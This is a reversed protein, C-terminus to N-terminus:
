NRLHSNSMLYFKVTKVAAEALGNFHPGGPPSFHWKIKKNMLESCIKAHHADEDEIAELNEMLIKNARVFNTGNDSYINTVTGRRATFRRFAAIFAEATMDTVAEIHIAKVSMCIFIAIYGKHTKFGRGNSMKVNIAGTYDLATNTFPKNVTNVRAGPLQAMIQNM